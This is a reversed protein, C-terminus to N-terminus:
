AKLEECEEVKPKKAKAFKLCHACYLSLYGSNHFEANRYIKYNHNCIPKKTVKKM